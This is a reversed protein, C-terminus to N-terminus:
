LEQPASAVDVPGAIARRIRLGFEIMLLLCSVPIVALVWWEPFVLSKLIMSGLRASALAAETGYALIIGCVALGLVDALIEMGRAVPPPVSTVVIDVRVHAGLRLVWPAALFSLAYMGYEVADTLWPIGSHWLNRLGVDVAILVTGVGILAGALMGLAELLREHLRRLRDM